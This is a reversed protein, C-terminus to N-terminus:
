GAAPGERFLPVVRILGYFVATVGMYTFLGAVGDYNSVIAQGFTMVAFVFMSFALGSLLIPKAKGPLFEGTVISAVFALFALLDLVGLIVWTADVGPFSDVITGNYAKALGAPMHGDQDFLKEKFAYYWLFGYAIYISAVGAFYTGTDVLRTWADRRGPTSAAHAAM